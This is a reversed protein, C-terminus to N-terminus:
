ETGQETREIKTLGHRMRMLRSPPIDWTLRLCTDLQWGMSKRFKPVIGNIQKFGGLIARDDRKNLFTEM